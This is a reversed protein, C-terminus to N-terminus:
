ADFLCGIVDGHSRFSRGSTDVSNLQGSPRFAVVYAYHLDGLAPPRSATFALLADLLSLQSDANYAEMWMAHTGPIMESRAHSLTSLTQLGFVQLPQLVEFFPENELDLVM